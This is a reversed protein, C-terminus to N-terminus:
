HIFLIQYFLMNKDDDPNDYKSKGNLNYDGQLYGYAFNYNATFEINTPYTLVEIFLMNHDDGRNVFKIKGNSDFDGAWLSMYDQVVNAKQALGSYDYGDNLTNGFDFTPTSPLTFDVLRNVSIKESMVGLHNRHKLIVYCSDAALGPFAVFSIGDLDVVDGDRQILASRTALVNGYDNKSRLEVFVWDVIANEGTVGFVAASDSFIGTSWDAERESM